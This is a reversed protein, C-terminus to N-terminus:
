WRDATSYNFFAYDQKYFDQIEQCTADSLVIKKIEEEFDKEANKRRPMTLYDFKVGIKAELKRAWNEDYGDEQRYVDVGNIYFEVQPRIHNDFAFPNDEYRKKVIKWWHNIDEPKKNDQNSNQNRTMFERMIFESRARFVPNRVTMFIYNFNELKFIQNIQEAHMHQPTCKRLKNMKPSFESISFGNKKFFSEIHTGGTKPVHIYFVNIDDRTFIPM